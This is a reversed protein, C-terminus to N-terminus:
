RLKHVSRRWEFYCEGATLEEKQLAISTKQPISLVQNLVEVKEWDTKSLANEKPLCKDEVMKIIPEKLEVLREIMM